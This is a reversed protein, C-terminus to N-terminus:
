QIAKLMFNLNGSPDKGDFVASGTVIVDPAMAAVKAINDKKIAGDVFVLLNPNLKRVQAIKEPLTDIFNEKGTKPGVALLVVLDLDDAFSAITDISTSPDLSLGVLIDQAQPMQKIDSLTQAIDSCSEASFAIINAGASVFNEIQQQPQDILLHVDMLMSTKLGQVFPSGVTIKPWIRGDMVDIHLLNVGADELLQIEAGLNMLDATIPGVSLQPSAQKLQKLIDRKSM